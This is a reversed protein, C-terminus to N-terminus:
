RSPSIINSYIEEASNLFLEGFEKTSLGYINQFANEFSPNTKAERVLSKLREVGYEETLFRVAFYSHTYINTVYGGTKIEKMWRLQGAVGNWRNLDKSYHQDNILKELQEPQTFRATFGQHGLYIALGEDFWRPFYLPSRKATNFLYYHSLEATIVGEDMYDSSIYIRGLSNNGGRGMGTFRLLDFSSKALVITFPFQQPYFGLVNEEAQNILQVFSEKKAEWGRPYVITKSGIKQTQYGIKLPSFSFLPGFLFLLLISVGLFFANRILYPLNM